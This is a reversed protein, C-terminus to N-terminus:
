SQSEAAELYAEAYGTDGLFRGCGQVIDVGWFANAEMVMAGWNSSIIDWGISPM